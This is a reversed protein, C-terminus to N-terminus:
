IELKKLYIIEMLDLMEELKEQSGEIKEINKCNGSITGVNKGVNGRVCM